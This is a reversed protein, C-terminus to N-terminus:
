LPALGFPSLDENEPGYNHIKVFIMIKLMKTRNYPGEYAGSLFEIKSDHIITNTGLTPTGTFCIQARNSVKVPAGREGSTVTFFFGM